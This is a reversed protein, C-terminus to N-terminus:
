PTMEEIPEITGGARRTRRATSWTIGVSATIVCAMAVLDTASLHERLLLWAWAAAVAPEISMMISFVAQDLTRLAALELGYPLVSSLLGVGAGVLWVMPNALVPASTALTPGLLVLSGAITAWAVPQAGKWRAGVPPSILIYAGWCAASALAWGVGALTLSQPAGGLLAVGIAALGVWILDRVGRNKVVAVTMPGLFEITVALGVPIRAIAQYFTINMGILALAYGGLVLWDRRGHGRWGPRTVVTLIVAATTIRLWVIALPGALPFLGKAVASGLQVSLTAALTMAIAKRM